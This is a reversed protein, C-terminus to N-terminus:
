NEKDEGDLLLSPKRTAGTGAGIYVASTRPKFGFGGGGSSSGARGTMSPRRTVPIGGTKSASVASVKAAPVGSNGRAESLAEVQATTPPVRASGGVATAVTARPTVLGSTRTAAVSGIRSMSARPVLTRPRAVGTPTEGVDVSSNDLGHPQSASKRLGGTALPTANAAVAASRTTATRATPTALSASRATATRASPTRTLAVSSRASASTTSSATLSARPRPIAGVGATGATAPASARPTPLVGSSRSTLSARPKPITRSAATPTKMGPSSGATTAPTSATRSRGPTAPGLSPVPPIPHAQVVAASALSERRRAPGSVPPRTTTFTSKRRSRMPTKAESGPDISSLQASSALSSSSSHSSLGSSASGSRSLAPEPKAAAAAAGSARPQLLRSGARPTVLSTRPASRSVPKTVTSPAASPRTVTSIATRASALGRSPTKDVVQRGVLAKRAAETAWKQMNKTDREFDEEEEEDDDDDDSSGLRAQQRKPQINAKEAGKKPSRSQSISFSNNGFLLSAEGSEDMLNGAIISSNGIFSGTLNLEITDDGAANKIVKGIGLGRLGLTNSRRSPTGPKIEPVDDEPVMSCRPKAKYAGYKAPSSRRTTGAAGVSASVSSSSKIRAKASSVDFSDDITVDAATNAAAVLFSADQNFLLEQTGTTDLNLTLDSLKASPSSSSALMSPRMRPPKGATSSSAPAPSLPTTANSTRTDTLQLGKGPSSSSSIIVPRRLPSDRNYPRPSAPDTSGIKSPSTTPSSPKTFLSPAIDRSVQKSPSSLVSSGSAKRPSKSPSTPPPMKISDFMAALAAKEPSMPKTEISFSRKQEPSQLGSLMVGELTGSQVNEQVIAATTSPHELADSQGIASAAVSAQAPMLQVLSGDPSVPLQVSAAGDFSDELAM